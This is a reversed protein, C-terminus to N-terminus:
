VHEEMFMEKAVTKAREYQKTYDFDPNFCKFDSNWIDKTLSKKALYLPVKYPHESGYEGTYMGEADYYEGSVCVVLHHNPQAELNKYLYLSNDWGSPKNNFFSEVTDRDVFHISNGTGFESLVESSICAIAGCGGKNPYSLNGFARIFFEEIDM